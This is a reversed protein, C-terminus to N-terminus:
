AEEINLEVFKLEEKRPWCYSTDRDTRCITKHDRPYTGVVALFYGHETGHFAGNWTSSIYGRVQFKIGSKEEYNKLLVDWAADRADLDMLNALWGNYLDGALDLLFAKEVKTIDRM